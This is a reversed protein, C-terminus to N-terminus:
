KKKNASSPKSAKILTIDIPERTYLEHMRISNGSEREVEFLHKTYNVEMVMRTQSVLAPYTIEIAKHTIRISDKEFRIIAGNEFLTNDPTASVVQWLFPENNTANCGFCLLYICVILILRYM